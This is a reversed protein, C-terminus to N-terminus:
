FEVGKQAKIGQKYPHKIEKMETVLDARDIIEPKAGRGTLMLHVAPLKVEILELVEEVSVLEFQIAYNIEDMIVMDWSGSAVAERAAALAEAAALRHAQEDEPTGDKVFGKGMPRICFNEGLKEIAKLEGYKWSGKIFQVVLVRLGQGWARMGMGLAATTKGKGNGTNVMVLGQTESM